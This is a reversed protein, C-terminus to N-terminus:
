ATFGAIRSFINEPHWLLSEGIAMRKIKKIEIFKNEKLFLIAENCEIPITIKNNTLIKVKLLEIGSKVDNALITGEELSPLYYGTLDNNENLYLLSNQIHNKLLNNRDEGSIKKDLALISTLYKGEFPIINSAKNFSKLITDNKLVSYENVDKFGVKYYLPEGIKTAILSITQIKDDYLKNILHNVIKYGIGQGRFEQDVIIHALWASNKFKISSGIGVIKNDLIFKIPNCFPNQIYYKFIPIIDSWDEPQFKKIEEIDSNIISQIQM